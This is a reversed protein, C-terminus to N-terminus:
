LMFDRGLPSSAVLAHSVRARHHLTPKRLPCECKGVDCEEEARNRDGRARIAVSTTIVKQSVASLRDHESSSNHDELFTTRGRFRPEPLNLLRRSYRLPTHFTGSHALSFENGATAVLCREAAGPAGRCGTWNCEESSSARLRLNVERQDSGIIITARRTRRRYGLTAVHGLSGVRMFERSQPGMASSLISCRRFALAPYVPYGRSFGGVLPMTRYSEWTRFNGRRSTLRTRRPPLDTTQGSCYRPGGHVFDHSLTHQSHLRWIALPSTSPALTHTNSPPPPDGKSPVGSREPFSPREGSYEHPQSRVASTACETRGCFLGSYLPLAAVQLLPNVWSFCAPKDHLSHTFSFQQTFSFQAARLMLTKLVSTPSAFHTLLLMPIFTRPPPFLLDGLLGRRGVDDDTVIGVHSFGPALGGPIPKIQLKRLSLALEIVVAQVGDPGDQEMTQKTHPLVLASAIAQGCWLLINKEFFHSSVPFMGYSELQKKSSQVIQIAVVFRSEARSIDIRGPGTSDPLM